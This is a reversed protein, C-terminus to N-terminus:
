LNIKFVILLHHIENKTYVISFQSINHSPRCAAGPSMMTMYRFQMFSTSLRVPWKKRPPQAMKAWFYKSLARFVALMNQGFLMSDLLQIFSNVNYVISNWEFYSQGVALLLLFGPNRASDKDGEISDIYLVVVFAILKTKRKIFVNKKM